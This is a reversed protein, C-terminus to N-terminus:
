TQDVTKLMSQKLEQITRLHENRFPVAHGMAFKCPVLRDIIAKSLEDMGTNMVSSIAVVQLSPNLAAQITALQSENAFLDAKTVVVMVKSKCDDIIQQHLVVLGEDPEVLLLILDAERLVDMARRIGEAEVRCDTERLGATDILEIPWGGLTTRERLVDRTTGPQHHVIARTYGLIRNLFSSKGANPPGVIAVRWGDLLRLGYNSRSELESLANRAGGFDNAAIQEYIATMARGLLGTTQELLIATTLETTAKPLDQWADETWRKTRSGVTISQEIDAGFSEIAGHRVFDSIIRNSAVPGGHCHVEVCDEKTWCIVVDESAQSKHPNLLETGYPVWTGYRITNIAVQRNGTAPKWFLNILSQSQPGKLQIVAIAAPARATLLRVYTPATAEIASQAPKLCLDENSMPETIIM